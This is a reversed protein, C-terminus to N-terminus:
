NGLKKIKNLCRFINKKRRDLIETGLIIAILLKEQELRAQHKTKTKNKEKKNKKDTTGNPFRLRANIRPEFSELTAM